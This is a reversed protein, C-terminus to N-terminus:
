ERGSRWTGDGWFKQEKRPCASPLDRGSACNTPLVGMQFHGRLDPWMQRWQVTGKLWGSKSHTSFTPRGEPYQGRWYLWCIVITAHFTCHPCTHCQSCLPPSVRVTGTPSPANGVPSQGLLCPSCTSCCPLLVAAIFATTHSMWSSPMPLAPCSLLGAFYASDPWSLNLVPCQDFTLGSLCLLRVSHTFKSQIGDPPFIAIFLYKQFLLRVSPIECCM